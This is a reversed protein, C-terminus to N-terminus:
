HLVREGVPAGVDNGSEGRKSLTQVEQRLRLTAQALNQLQQEYQRQQRQTTEIATALQQATVVQQKSANALAQIFAQRQRRVFLCLAAVAGITSGLTALIGAIMIDPIFM